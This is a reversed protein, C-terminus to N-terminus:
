GKTSVKDKVLSIIITIIIIFLISTVLIRWIIREDFNGTTRYIIYTYCINHTMYERWPTRCWSFDHVLNWTILSELYSKM